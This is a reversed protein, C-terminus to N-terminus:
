SGPILPFDLFGNVFWLYAMPAALLLSDMLDLVGGFGPLWTSSDKVGADRKLMSESLDGILGAIAITATFAMLLAFSQWTFLDWGFHRLGITASVIACALGIGGVAGEWTKGPSLKPALKRKGFTRGVFYQCTDSLKVTVLFVLLPQLGMFGHIALPARVLRLQVIAGLCGGIYLVAFATVAVNGISRGSGDFRVMEALFATALGAILGVALWGHAGMTYNYVIKFFLIPVCCFLVPLMAALYFGVKSPEFGRARIMALLEGTCLWGVGLALLGLVAGPMPLTADLWSLGALALILAAGLSLRWVLV